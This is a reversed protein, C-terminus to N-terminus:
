QQLPFCWEVHCRGGIPPRCLKKEELKYHISRTRCNSVLYILLSFSFWTLLIQNTQKQNRWNLYRVFTLYNKKNCNIGLSGKM